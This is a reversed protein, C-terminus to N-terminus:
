LGFGMGITLLISQTYIQSSDSFQELSLLARNYVAELRFDSTPTVPIEAGIGAQAIVNVSRMGDTSTNVSDSQTTTGTVTTSTRSISSTKGILFAPLVGAKLTLRRGARGEYNLKGLLPVTLYDIAMEGSRLDQGGSATTGNITVFAGERLYLLGTQGSLLGDGFEALLGGTVGTYTGTTDKETGIGSLLITSSGVGLVPALTAYSRHFRAGGRVNARLAAEQASASGVVFVAMLAAWIAKM